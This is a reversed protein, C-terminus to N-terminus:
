PRPHAMRRNTMHDLMASQRLPACRPQEPNIPRSHAVPAPALIIRRVAFEDLCQRGLPAPEAVPPQALHGLALPM